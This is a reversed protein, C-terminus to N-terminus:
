LTQFCRVKSGCCGNKEIRERLFDAQIEEVKVPTKRELLEYGLDELHKACEAADPHHIAIMKYDYRGSGHISNQHISYKLVAAGEMFPDQGCKTMSVVFPIVTAGDRGKKISILPVGAVLNSSHANRVESGTGAMKWFLIAHIMVIIGFMASLLQYLPFKVKAGDSRSYPRRFKVM